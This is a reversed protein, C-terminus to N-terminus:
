LQLVGKVSCTTNDITPWTQPFTGTRPGGDSTQKGFKSTLPSGDM